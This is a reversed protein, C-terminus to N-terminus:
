YGEQQKIFGELVILQEARLVGNNPLVPIESHIFDILITVIDNSVVSVQM